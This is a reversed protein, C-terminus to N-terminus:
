IERISLLQKLRPYPFVPGERCIFYPGFQCHGCLGIGCKMNREMSFYIQGPDVGIKLLEMTTFRMMVEPGCIMAVTNAPDFSAKPILGTVVGVHGKWSGLARDVTVFVHFDFRGRWEELDKLFMIDEPERTGYLLVLKGFQQRRALAEYVVPRLPALGIGGAVIVLDSGVADNVPWASGYPGRIGLVDGRRISRMAMTVSGVARITHVLTQPEAANGSISIPVEGLGHVYVMNFQGPRFALPPGGESTLEVTFVDHTERKVRLVRFPRPVFLSSVTTESITEAEPM